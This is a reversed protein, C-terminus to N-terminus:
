RADTREQGRRVVPPVARRPMIRPVFAVIKNTFGPIELPKGAMM